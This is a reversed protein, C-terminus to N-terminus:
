SRRGDAPASVVTAVLASSAATRHRAGWGYSATLTLPYRGTPTDAPVTVAWSTDLAADTALLRDRTGTAAVVTWGAPATVGARVDRIARAGRNTVTTHLTGGTAAGPVLTGVGGAVTVAPAVPFPDALPRVRYVATGHAPV